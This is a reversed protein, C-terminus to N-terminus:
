FRNQVAESALERLADSAIWRATKSDMKQIEKATKTAAKNLKANRKGIHRLAWNVAKKVFNRDDTAARKIVPLLKIFDADRADKNHWALGALLAFAARKVFEEDRESWIVVKKWAFPTKDFLTVCVQDCVDWSNLGVVWEDMQAETVQRPDDILAAVIRADPIGTKWLELALAHDKGLEKAIQRMDPVSLGLRGEGVIGFRAMGELQDPKAKARILKLAQRLTAM